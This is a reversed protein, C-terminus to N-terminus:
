SLLSASEHIRVGVVVKVGARAWYKAALAVLNAHWDFSMVVDPREERLIRALRLIARRWDLNTRRRLDYVPVDDPLDAFYPGKREFVAFSPSFRLRDLKRM